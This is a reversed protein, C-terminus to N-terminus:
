SGPARYGDLVGDVVQRAFADDLRGGFVLRFYVPGMLLELAVNSDVDDRLDGRVIGRKIVRSVQERRARVVRDRFPNGLLPNIAIQSLLARVVPGFASEQLSRISNTMTRLLEGRTDGTDPVDTHPSALQELLAQALEEKSSWRRYITAKGVGAKTAVHELRLRDYGNAILLDRTADLIAQHVEESRPRGRGPSM